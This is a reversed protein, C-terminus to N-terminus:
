QMKPDAYIIENHMIFTLITKKHFDLKATSSVIFCQKGRELVWDMFCVQMSTFSMTQSERIILICFNGIM